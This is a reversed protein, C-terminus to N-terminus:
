LSNKKQPKIIIWSIIFLIGNKKKLRLKFIQSQFSFIKVGDQLWCDPSLGAKMCTNALFEETDWKWEVPVQPLLLGRYVGKEIILGDEGVKIKNL